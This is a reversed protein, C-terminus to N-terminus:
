DDWNDPRDHVRANDQQM